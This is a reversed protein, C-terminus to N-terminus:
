KEKKGEMKADVLKVMKRWFAVINRYAERGDKTNIYEGNFQKIDEWITPALGTANKETQWHPTWLWASYFEKKGKDKFRKSVCDEWQNTALPVPLTGHPIWVWKAIPLQICQLLKAGKVSNMYAHLTSIQFGADKVESVKVLTIMIGQTSAKIYGGIGVFGYADAEWKFAVARQAIAFSHSGM